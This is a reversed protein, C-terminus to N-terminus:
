LWIPADIDLHTPGLKNEPVVSWAKRRKRLLIRLSPKLYSKSLKVLATRHELICLALMTFYYFSQLWAHCNQLLFQGFYFCNSLLRFNAWDPWGSKFESLFTSEPLLILCLKIGVLITEVKTMKDVFLTVKSVLFENVPLDQDQSHVQGTAVNVNRERSM